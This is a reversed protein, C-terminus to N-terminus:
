KGPMEMWIQEPVGRPGPLDGPCMSLSWIFRTKSVLSIGPITTGNNNDWRCKYGILSVILMKNSEQKIQYINAHLAFMLPRYCNIGLDTWNEGDRVQRRQQGDAPLHMKGQGKWCGLAGARRWSGGSASPGFLSQLSEPLTMHSLCILVDKVLDGARCPATIGGNWGQFVPLEPPQVSLEFQGRPV